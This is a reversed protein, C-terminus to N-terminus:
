DSRKEREQKKGRIESNNYVNREKGNLEKKEEGERKGRLRVEDGCGRRM